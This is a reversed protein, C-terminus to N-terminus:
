RPVHVGPARKNLFNNKKKSNKKMKEENRKFNGNQKNKIAVSFERDLDPMELTSLETTDPGEFEESPLYLDNVKFHPGRTSTDLLQILRWDNNQSDSTAKDLISLADTM